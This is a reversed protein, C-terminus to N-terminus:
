KLGLNSFEEKYQNALIDCVFLWLASSIVLRAILKETFGVAQGCYM